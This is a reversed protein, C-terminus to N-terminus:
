PMMFELSACEHIIEDYIGKQLDEYFISITARVVKRKSYLEMIKQQYHVQIKSKSWMYTHLIERAKIITM